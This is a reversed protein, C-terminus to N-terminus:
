IGISGQEMEDNQTSLAGKDDTKVCIGCGLVERRQGSGIRASELM